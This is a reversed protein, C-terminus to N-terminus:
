KFWGDGQTEGAHPFIAAATEPDIVLVRKDSQYEGSELIEMVEEEALTEKNYVVIKTVPSSSIVNGESGVLTENFTCELLQINLSQRIIRERESEPLAKIKEEDM